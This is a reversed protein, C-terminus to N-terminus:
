CRLAPCLRLSNLIFLVGILILFAGVAFWTVREVRSVQAFQNKKWLPRLELVFSPDVATAVALLLGIAACLADLVMTGLWYSGHPADPPGPIIRLVQGVIFAIGLFSFVGCTVLKRLESEEIIVRHYKRCPKSKRRRSELTVCVAM